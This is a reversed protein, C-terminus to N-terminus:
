RCQMVVENACTQRIVGGVHADVDCHDAPLVDEPGLNAAGILRGTQLDFNYVRDDHIGTGHLQVSGCGTSATWHLRSPDFGADPAGADDTATEEGPKDSCVGPESFVALSGPCDYSACYDALSTRLAGWGYDDDPPGDWLPFHEWACRGGVADPKGDDGGCAATSMVLTLALFSSLSWSM